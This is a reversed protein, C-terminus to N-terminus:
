GDTSILKQVSAHLIQLQPVAMVAEDRTYVFVGLALAKELKRGAKEGVL